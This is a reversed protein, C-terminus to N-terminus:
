GPAAARAVIERAARDRREREANPSGGRTPRRLADPPAVTLVLLLMRDRAVPMRAMMSMLLV